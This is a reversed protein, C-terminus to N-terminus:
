ERGRRAVLGVEDVTVGLFVFGLESLVILPRGPRSPKSFVWGVMLATVQIGMAAAGAVGGGMARKLAHKIDFANKDKKKEQTPATPTSM